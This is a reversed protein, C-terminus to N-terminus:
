PKKRFPLPSKASHGLAVYQIFVIIDSVMAVTTGLTQAFQGEDLVSFLYTLNGLILFIMFLKSTKAAEAADIQGFCGRLMQPVRSATFFVMALWCSADGIVSDPEDFLFLGVNLLAMLVAPPVLARGILQRTSLPRHSANSSGYFLHQMWLVCDASFCYVSLAVVIAKQHTFLTCAVTSGDGATWLVIFPMSLGSSRAKHNEWIQPISAICWILLSVWGWMHSSMVAEWPMM